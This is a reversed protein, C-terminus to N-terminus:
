KKCSPEKSSNAATLDVGTLDAGAFHGQLGQQGGSEAWIRTSISFRGCISAPRRYRRAARAAEGLEELRDVFHPEAVPESTPELVTEAAELPPEEMFARAEAVIQEPTPIPEASVPKSTVEPEAQMPAPMRKEKSEEMRPGVALELTKRRCPNLANQGFTRNLRRNRHSPFRRGVPQVPTEKILDKLLQEEFLALIKAETDPDPALSGYEALEEPTALRETQKEGGGWTFGLFNKAPQDPM